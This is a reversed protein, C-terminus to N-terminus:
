RGSNVIYSMDGACFRNAYDLNALQISKYKDNNEAHLLLRRMYYDARESTREDMFPDVYELEKGYVGLMPNKGEFFLDLASSASELDHFVFRNKGIHDWRHKRYGTLNLHISPCGVLAAETVATSFPFGIAMDAMCGIVIPKYRYGKEEFLLHMRKVAIYHDIKSAIEPMADKVFGYDKPKYVLRMIPYKDLMRFMLEFINVLDRKSNPLDNCVLNDFFSIVTCEENISLEKKLNLADIRAQEFLPSDNFGVKVYNVNRSGSGTYLDIAADGWVFFVDASTEIHPHPAGQNSWHGRVYIIDEADAALVCPAEGFSRLTYLIRVKCSSLVARWWMVSLLEFVVLRIYEYKFAYMILRLSRPFFSLFKKCVEIYVSMPASRLIGVPGYVFSKIDATDGLRKVTRNILLLLNEYIDPNNVWHLDNKESRDIHKRLVQVGICDNFGQDGTGKARIWGALWLFPFFAFAVAYMVLWYSISLQWIGPAYTSEFCYGKRKKPIWSDILGQYSCVQVESSLYASEPLKRRVLVDCNFIRGWTIAESQHFLGMISYPSLSRRLREVSCGAMSAVEDAAAIVVREMHEALIEERLVAGNTESVVVDSLPEHLQSFGNSMCAPFLRLIMAGIITERCYYIKDYSTIKGKCILHCISDFSLLDLVLLNDKKLCCVM